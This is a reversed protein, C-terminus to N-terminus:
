EYQDQLELEKKEEAIEKAEQQIEIVQVRVRGLESQLWPKISLITALVERRGGGISSFILLSYLQKQQIHAFVTIHSFM